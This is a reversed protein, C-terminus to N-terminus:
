LNHSKRAVAWIVEYTVPIYGNIGFAERYALLLGKFLRPPLPRPVPNTAGTAQLERLFERVGPYTMQELSTRLRIKEFGATRLFSEWGAAPTFSSAPIAYPEPYGLGQSATKLATALERFTAPGLATFALVGGSSLLNFYTVLTNEPRSFWQFVSNSIILDFPGGSWAEGDAAVWFLRADNEMRARARLLLGPDLDVAVLTARPNLRRLAVTFSGTGCGVELIRRARLVEERCDRLLEQGMWPQVTAHSDYSEGRRAFNRRLAQKYTKVKGEAASFSM